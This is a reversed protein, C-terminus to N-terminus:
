DSFEICIIEPFGLTIEELLAERVEPADPLRHAALFESVCLYCGGAEDVYLGADLRQLRPQKQKFM